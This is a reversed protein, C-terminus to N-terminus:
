KKNFMTPKKHEAIQGANKYDAWYGKATYDATNHADCVKEYAPGYDTGTQTMIDIVAALHEAVRYWKEAQRRSFKAIEAAKEETETM